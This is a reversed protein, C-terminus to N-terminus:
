GEDKRREQMWEETEQIARQIDQILDQHKRDDQQSGWIQHKVWFLKAIRGCTLGALEVFRIAATLNDFPGAHEFARRLLIRLVMIENEISATALEHPDVGEFDVARLPAYFGHIFRDQNGPQAGSLRRHYPGRSPFNPFRRRLSGRGRRALMRGLYGIYLRTSHLSSRGLFAQLDVDDGGQDLFLLAATHRLCFYNVKEVPLGAWAAYIKLNRLTVCRSLPKKPNWEEPKGTPPFLCPGAQPAFIYDGPQITELRGSDHLYTYIAQYALRPLEKLGSAGTLRLAVKQPDVQLDGWRALRLEEEILNSTLLTLLFAYDRKGILSSHHDVARLLCRIEQTTLVYSTQYHLQRFPRSAQVPNFPKHPHSFLPEGAQMDPQRGCFRYFTSISQRYYQITAPSYGGQAMQEQWADIRARDISWPPCRTFAFLSSWARLVRQVQKPTRAVTPTALWSEFANSWLTLRPSISLIQESAPGFLLLILQSQM